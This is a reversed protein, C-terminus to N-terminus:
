FLGSTFLNSYSSVLFVRWTQDVWLVQSRWAEVVLPSRLTKDESTIWIQWYRGVAGSLRVMKDQCIGLVEWAGFCERCESYTHTINPNLDGRLTYCHSLPLLLSQSSKERLSSYSERVLHTTSVERQPKRKFLRGVIKQTILTYITHHLSILIVSLIM